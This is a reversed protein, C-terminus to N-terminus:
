DLSPVTILLLVRGFEPCTRASRCFSASAFRNTEPKCVSSMM